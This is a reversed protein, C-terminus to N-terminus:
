AGGRAASSVSLETQDPLSFSPSGAVGVAFLGADEIREFLGYLEGSGSAIPLTLHVWPIIRQGPKM